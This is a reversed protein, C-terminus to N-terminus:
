PEMSYDTTVKIPRGKNIITHHKERAAKLISEKGQINPTKILKVVHPEKRTKTYIGITDPNTGRKKIRPFNRNPKKFNNETGKSSSKRDEM